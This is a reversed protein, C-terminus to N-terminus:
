ASKGIRQFLSDMKAELATPDALIMELQAVWVRGLQKRRLGLKVADKTTTVLCTAGTSRFSRRIGAISQEDYVAHDPLSISGAVDIGAEALGSFFRDPDAVGAFALVKEGFLVSFSQIKGGSLPVIGSLHHRATLVPVGAPAGPLQKGEGDCRTLVILDARSIASRPERLVGAPLTWGNGFPHRSDLLLVNLDRQVGLHQFGDDLIFIDPNLELEALKGAEYRDHGIVVMLGPLDKALLYPEDGCEAPTLFIAKGDSVVRPAGSSSGGYGRSLVAVRKGQVQLRRAILATM